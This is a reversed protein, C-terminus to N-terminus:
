RDPSRSALWRNLLYIPVGLCLIVAAGLAIWPKYIVASYILFGCVACFVKM